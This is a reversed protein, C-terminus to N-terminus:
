NPRLRFTVPLTFRASVTKGRQKGPKWKPMAKVLRTAEKNLSADVGRVLQVDKITGDKWVVFQVVVTGQIGNESAIMPYKLNKRLWNALAKKGGPFEPMEEVVTFVEDEGTDEDGYEGYDDYNVPDKNEVDAEADEIELEEDISTDDEVIEVLDTLRPAPPPPPPPKLMQQTIPIIEEEVEEDPPVVFGEEVKTEVKWSFAALLAALAIVLGIEFFITKKGELNAKPSKKIEM